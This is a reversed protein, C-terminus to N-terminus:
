NDLEIYDPTALAMRDSAILHGAKSETRPTNSVNERKSLEQLAEKMCLTEIHVM